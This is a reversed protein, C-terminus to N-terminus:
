SLAMTSVKKLSKFGSSTQCRHKKRSLCGFSSDAPIGPTEVIGEPPM